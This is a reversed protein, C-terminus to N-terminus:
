GPNVATMMFSPQHEEKFKWFAMEAKAKSAVYIIRGPSDKGLRDAETPAWYSWDKETYTYPLLTAFPHFEM